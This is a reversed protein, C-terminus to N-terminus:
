PEQVTIAIYKQIRHEGMLFTTICAVKPNKAKGLSGTSTTLGRMSFRIVRKHAIRRVLYQKNMLKKLNINKTFMLIGKIYLYSEVTNQESLFRMNEDSTSELKIGSKVM